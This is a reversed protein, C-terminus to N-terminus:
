QIEKLIIKLTEKPSSNSSDITKFLKSPKSSFHKHLIKVRHPIRQDKPRKSDRHLTVKLSPLLMFGFVDQFQKRFAVLDKDNYIGDVIVIYQNNLYEKIIQNAIKDNLRHQKKAETSTDWPAFNGAKVFYRVTDISFNVSKDFKSALLKAITSKGSGPPGSFIILM